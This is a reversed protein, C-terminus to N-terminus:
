VSITVYCAQYDAWFWVFKNEYEDLNIDACEYKADPRHKDNIAKIAEVDAESCYITAETEPLAAKLMKFDEM